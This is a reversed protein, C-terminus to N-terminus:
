VIKIINQLNIIINQLNIMEYKIIVLKLENNVQPLNYFGIYYKLGVCSSIDIKCIGDVVHLYELNRPCKLKHRMRGSITMRVINNTKTLIKLEYCRYIWLSKLNECSIEGINRCKKIFLVELNPFNRDTISDPHYCNKMYLAYLNEFVTDDEFFVTDLKAVKLIKLKPLYGLEVSYTDVDKFGFYKCIYEYSDCGEDNGCIDLYQLNNFGTIKGINCCGYLKLIKLNHKDIFTINSHFMCCWLTLSKLKMGPYKMYKDDHYRNSLKRLNISILNSNSHIICEFLQRSMNFYRINWKGIFEFSDINRIAPILFRKDTIKVLLCKWIQYIYRKEDYKFYGFIGCIIHKENKSDSADYDYEYRCRYQIYSLIEYIIVDYPLRCLKKDM